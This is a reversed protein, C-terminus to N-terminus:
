SPMNSLTLGSLPGNGSGPMSPGNGVHGVGPMPNGGGGRMAAIAAAHAALTNPDPGAGGPGAAAAGMLLQQRHAAVAEHRLQEQRAAELAFMTDGSPHSMGSGHTGSGATRPSFGGGAHLGGGPGGFPTPSQGGGGPAGSMAGHPAGGGPALSMGGAGSPAVGRLNQPPGGGQANNRREIMAVLRARIADEATNHSSSMDGPHLGQQNAQVNRALLQHLVSMAPQQGGGHPSPLSAGHLPVGGSAPDMCGQGVPLSPAGGRSSQNSLAIALRMRAADDM